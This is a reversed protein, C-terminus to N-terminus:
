SVENIWSKIIDAAVDPNKRTVELLHQKSNQRLQLEANMSESPQGEGQQLARVSAYESTSTLLKKLPRILILIALVILGINILPKYSKKAYDMLGSTEEVAGLDEKPMNFSINSVTVQDGRADDFGIAKKVIDEFTKM